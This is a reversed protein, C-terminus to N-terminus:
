SDNKVQKTCAYVLLCTQSLSAVHNVNSLRVLCMMLAERICYWRCFTIAHEVQCAISCSNCKGPLTEYNEGNMIAASPLAM